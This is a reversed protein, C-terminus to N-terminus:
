RFLLADLTWPGPGLGAAALALMLYVEAMQSDKKLVRTTYIAGALTGCVLLAAPRTLLGLALCAGGGLQAMTGFWANAAPYPFGAAAIEDQFPWHAKRGARWALGDRLKHLGHHLILLLGVSMHVQQVAAERIWTSTVSGVLWQLLTNM